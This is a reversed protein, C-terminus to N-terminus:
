VLKERLEALIKRERRSVGVQTLGLLKATEALTKGCSGSKAALERLGNERSFGIKGSVGAIREGALVWRARNEEAGDFSNRM